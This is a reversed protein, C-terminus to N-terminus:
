PVFVTPNKDEERHESPDKFVIVITKKEQGQFIDKPNKTYKLPQAM